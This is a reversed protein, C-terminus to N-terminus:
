NKNLFRVQRYCMRRNIFQTLIGMGKPALYKRMMTLYKSINKMAGLEDFLCAHLEERTHPLGDSLVELMKRMTPPLRKVEPM